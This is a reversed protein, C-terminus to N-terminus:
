LFDIEPVETSFVHLGRQLYIIVESISWAIILWVLSILFVQRCCKEMESM